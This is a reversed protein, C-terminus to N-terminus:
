VRQGSYTALRRVGMGLYAGAMTVALVVCGVPVASAVLAPKEVLSHAVMWGPIWVGVALAIMWARRTVGLGMLASGILLMGVTISTDDWHPRADIMAISIGVLLAPALMIWELRRYREAAFQEAVTRADGFRSLAEQEAADPTLRRAVAANVADALHGRTEEVLRDSPVWRIRLERKLGSLYTEIRDGSM